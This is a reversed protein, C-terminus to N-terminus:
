SQRPREGQPLTSQFSDLPFNYSSFCPREGQPLTSQFVGGVGKIPCYLTAGRAPAHISIQLGQFNSHRRGHREGQPLTSQFRKFCHISAYLLLREGQPLTSQFASINDMDAFTFDDSGKRSRPNFYFYILRRPIRWFTAGRAPAHISIIVISFNHVKCLTAGRAPAHISIRLAHPHCMKGPDSGKRSRPNFYSFPGSAYQCGVDSGKRSRPNFDICISSNTAVYLREGQPLTSQFIRVAPM